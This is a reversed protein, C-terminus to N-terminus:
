ILGLERFDDSYDILTEGVGSGNMSRAIEEADSMGSYVDKVVPQQVGSSALIQAYSEWTKTM